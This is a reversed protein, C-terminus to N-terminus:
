KKYNQNLKKEILYSFTQEQQVGAGWATSGGTIFIRFENEPKQQTFNENYRYHNNNTHWGIGTNNSAPIYGVFTNYEMKAIEEQSQYCQDKKDYPEYSEESCQKLPEEEHPNRILIRTIVELTFIFLLIIFTFSSVIQFYKKLM